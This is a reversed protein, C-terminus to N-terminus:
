RDDIYRPMDGLVEEKEQPIPQIKRSEAKSPSVGESSTSARRIGLTLATTTYDRM